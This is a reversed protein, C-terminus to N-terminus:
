IWVKEFEDKSIKFENFEILDLSFESLKGFPDELNQEDYRLKKGNEYLQIQRLVDGYQNTEFFFTSTGWSDTLPDGTTEEWLRKFYFTEM